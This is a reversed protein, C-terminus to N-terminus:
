SVIGTFIEIDEQSLPSHDCNGCSEPKGCDPCLENEPLEWKVGYKDEKM